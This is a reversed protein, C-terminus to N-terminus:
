CKSIWIVLTNLNCVKGLRIRFAIDKFVSKTLHLLIIPPLYSPLFCPSWVWSWWSFQFNHGPACHEGEWFAIEEEVFCPHFYKGVVQCPQQLFKGFYCIFNNQLSQLGVFDARRNHLSVRAQIVWCAYPNLPKHCQCLPLCLDTGRVGCVWCSLGRPSM